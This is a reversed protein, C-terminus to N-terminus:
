AGREFVVMTHPSTEELHVAARGGQWVWELDKGRPALYVRAPEGALQVSLAVDRYSPLEELPHALRPERPSPGPVIHVITDNDKHMVTVDVSGPLDTEVIRAALRDILWEVLRKLHPNPQGAYSSFVPHAVYAGSDSLTVAPRQADPQTM